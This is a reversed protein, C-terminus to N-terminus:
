RGVGALSGAWDRWAHCSRSEVWRKAEEKESETPLRITERIFDPRLIATMVRQTVLPITGKGYGSWRGIKELSAANGFHGFRYLTMALQHEIPMQENQANNSFVPDDQLRTVLKTFATPTICLEQRFSKSDTERYVHLIHQMLPPPCNTRPLM